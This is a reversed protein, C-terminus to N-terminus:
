APSTTWRRRPRSARAGAPRHRHRARARLGHAAHLAAVADRRRPRHVRAPQRLLLDAARVHGGPGAQEALPLRVLLAGRLVHLRPLGAPGARQHPARRRRRARRWLRRRDRRAGRRHVRRRRRTGRVHERARDRRRDPRGRRADGRRARAVPARAHARGGVREGPGGVRHDSDRNRGREHRTRALHMELEGSRKCAAPTGPAITSAPLPHRRASRGLQGPSPRSPNSACRPRRRLSRCTPATARRFPPGRARDRRYRTGRAARRSRSGCRSIDAARIGRSLNPIPCSNSRPASAGDGWTSCSSRLGACTGSSSSVSAATSPGRRRRMPSRSTRRPTTRPCRHRRRARSPDRRRLGTTPWPGTATCPGASTRWASLCSAQGAARALAPRAPRPDHPPDLARPAMFITRAIELGRDLLQADPVVEGVLGPALLEEPDMTQGTLLFHKARNVGICSASSPRCATVPSSGWARHLPRRDDHTSESAPVIDNLM